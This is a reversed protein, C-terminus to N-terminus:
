EIGHEREQSIENRDMVNSDINGLSMIKIGLGLSKQAGIGYVSGM